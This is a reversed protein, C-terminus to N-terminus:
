WFSRARNLEGKRVAVRKRANGLFQFEDDGVFLTGGAGHPLAALVLNQLQWCAAMVDSDASGEKSDLTQSTIALLSQVTRFTGEVTVHHGGTPLQLIKNPQGLSGSMVSISVKLCKQLECFIAIGLKNSASRKNM